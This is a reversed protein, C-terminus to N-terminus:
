PTLNATIGKGHKHDISLITLTALADRILPPVRDCDVEHVELARDVTRAPVPAFFFWETSFITEM